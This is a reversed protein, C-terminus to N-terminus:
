GISSTQQIQYNSDIQIHLDTSCDQDKLYNLNIALYLINKLAPSTLATHTVPSSILCVNLKSIQSLKWILKIQLTWFELQLLSTILVVNIQLCNLDQLLCYVM